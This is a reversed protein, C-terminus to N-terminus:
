RRGPAPDPVTLLYREYANVVPIGNHEQVRPTNWAYSRHVHGHCFALPHLEDALTVFCDFGRHAYDEADGCGTMPAHTVIIDVGGAKRIAKRVKRIRKQMEEETYQFAGPSYRRCGGLGLFRLGKCTFVTGDICECGEPPNELYGRDHNGPVYLVPKSSLTVLFELYERKLDGCSVIIDADAVREPQYYDWLAPCEVDSILLINIAM